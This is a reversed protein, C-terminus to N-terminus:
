VDSCDVASSRRHVGIFDAALAKACLVCLIRSPRLSTGLFDRCHVMQTRKRRNPVMPPLAKESKKDANM